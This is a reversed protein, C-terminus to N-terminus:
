RTRYDVAASRAVFDPKGVRRILCPLNKDVVSSKIQPVAKGANCSRPEKGAASVDSEPPPAAKIAKHLRLIGVKVLVTHVFNRYCKGEVAKVKPAAFAQAMQRPQRKPQRAFIRREDQRQFGIQPARAGYFNGRAAFAPALRANVPRHDAPRNRVSRSVSAPAPLAHRRSHQKVM